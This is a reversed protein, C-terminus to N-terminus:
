HKSYREAITKAAFQVDPALWRIEDQANFWTLQRKAYRRTNQATLEIANELTIKDNLFMIIEKYGVTNLSNITKPFGRALIARTEDVFGNKFMLETRKDIRSYLEERSYNLAYYDSDFNPLIVMKQAESFKEGTLIFHELARLVRRPNMDSYNKASEPDISSLLNYIFEKGHTNMKEELGKRVEDREEDNYKQEFLGKCVANIFLGTGGVIVPIKGRAFIEKATRRADDSFLGASYYEDPELMDIFHHPVKNLEDQTPKATGINLYKYVQRSDASIIEIDLYDALKLALATKGSATAGAIVIVKRRKREV